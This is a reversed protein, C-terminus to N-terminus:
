NLRPIIVVKHYCPLSHFIMDTHKLPSVKLAGLRKYVAIASLCWEDTM